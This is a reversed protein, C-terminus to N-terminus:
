RAQTRRHSDHIAWCCVGVKDRTGSVGREWKVSGVRFGCRLGFGNGCAGARQRKGYRMTDKRRGKYEEFNVAM